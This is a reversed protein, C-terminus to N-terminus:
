KPSQAGAGELHKMFFGFLAADGGNPPPSGMAPLYMENEIGFQDLREHILISHRPHHNLHGRTTPPGGRKSTILYVPPADACILGRMYVDAGIRKGEESDFDIFEIKPNEGRSVKRFQRLKKDVTYGKFTPLEFPTQTEMEM